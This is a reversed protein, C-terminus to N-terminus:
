GKGIEKKKKKKKKKIGQYKTTESNKRLTLAFAFTATAKSCVTFEDKPSENRNYIRDIFSRMFDSCVRIVGSRAPSLDIKTKSFEIPCLSRDYRPPSM